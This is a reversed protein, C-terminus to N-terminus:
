WIHKLLKGVDTNKAMLRSNNCIWVIEQECSFAREIVETLGHMDTEYKVNRVYYDPAQYGNVTVLNMSDHRIWTEVPM